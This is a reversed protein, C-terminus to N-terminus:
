DCYPCHVSTISRTSMSHLTALKMLCSPITRAEPLLRAVQVFVLVWQTYWVALASALRSALAGHVVVVAPRTPNSRMPEAFDVWQQLHYLDLHLIEKNERISTESSDDKGIKPRRNVNAGYPIDKIM